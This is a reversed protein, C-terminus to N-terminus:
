VNVEEKSNNFDDDFNRVDKKIPKYLVTGTRFRLTIVNNILLNTKCMIVNNLEIVIINPQLMIYSITIETDTRKIVINRNNKEENWSM